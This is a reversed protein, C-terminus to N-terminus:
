RGGETLRRKPLSRLGEKRRAGDQAAEASHRPSSAPQGCGDDRFGVRRLGPSAIRSRTLPTSGGCTGSRLAARTGGADGLSDMAPIVPPLQSSAPMAQPQNVLAVLVYSIIMLLFWAGLKGVTVMEWGHRQNPYMWAATFTGINEALWIFLAVLAFGPLLPMRRHTRWVKFHVWCRSFLLATLAFLLVRADWVYHHAFFNLYIGDHVPRQM